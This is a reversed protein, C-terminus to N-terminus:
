FDAPPPLAASAVDGAIDIRNHGAANASFSRQEMARNREEFEDCLIRAVV